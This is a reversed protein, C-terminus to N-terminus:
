YVKSKIEGISDNVIKENVDRLFKKYNKNENKLTLSDDFYYNKGNRKIGYIDLTFFPESDFYGITDKTNKNIKKLMIYSVSDTDITKYYFEISDNLSGSYESNVKQDLNVKEKVCSPSVLIGLLSVGLLFKKM